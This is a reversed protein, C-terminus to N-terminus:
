QLLAPMDGGEVLIESEGSEINTMYIDFRGPTSSTLDLVYRAYLLHRGDPSWTLSSYSAGDERLLVRAESGAPRVLWVQNSIVTAEMVVNRNIAIWDGAPSWAASYDTANAPGGLDTIEGSSLTYTKLRLSGGSGEQSGFLVAEGGPSWAAPLAAQLGLPVALNDGNELNFLVLTNDASSVYSLWAGDPSFEPAYSAFSGDQFVPRTEGTSLDLWWISFRPVLAATADDLREYALKQGDPYWRPSNCESRPCDLILRRGSGDSNLARIATGGEPNFLTYLITGGHPSMSYGTIGSSERTLQVAKGGSLPRVFLQDWGTSDAAIYLVRAQQVEFVSGARAEAASQVVASGFRLSKVASLTLAAGLGIVVVASLVPAYAAIRSVAERRAILRVGSVMAIGIGILVLALGISFSVILLMGFPIRNVAVAVLLIAIADPCPVLGGSIGLTLLSRMTVRQVPLQHSHGPHMANRHEHPHEHAHTHPHAHDHADDHHALGPQGARRGALWRALDSRRRFLLNLGFGIVLVGSIIELWPAILAPLIYHSAFLTVLGLLVVSGTHTLTVIAGPFVADRTRGQSGVLYAGVLAKGHGPTLAHLSGLVMSLLFAGVLFVPSFEETKVLSTLTATVSGGEAAAPRAPQDPDTLGTAMQSVAASFGPLNPTGTSWSTMAGDVSAPDAFHAEMQLLGNDQAPRQFLIGTGANVSFWNLSNAELHAAHVEITHAGSLDSAWAFRLSFRIRDEATRMVDVSAPWHVDQVGEHALGTDDLQVSLSSVFPALWAEAESTSISGGQDLDAAAWVADALFPGPLIQWEVHLADADLRVAFNQAYM